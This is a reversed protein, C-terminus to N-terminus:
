RGAGGAQGATARAADSPKLYVGRVDESASVVSVLGDVFTVEVFGGVLYAISLKADPPANEPWMRHMAQAPGGSAYLRELVREGGGGAGAAGPAAAPPTDPDPDPDAAAVPAVPAADAPSGNTFFARVTDGRMWDHAILRMVDADAEPLFPVLSDPTIREVYAQGVAVAEQLQQQPALVDVSDAVMNFQENVVRAQAAAVAGAVPQWQMAVMRAVGGDEFFLRIAAATVDMDESDLRANHRALVDRIEETETLTATISDGVLEYGPLEIQTRLGSLDMRRTNQDYEIVFAQAVLSDRELRADGTGRLRDDGVIDIQQAYLITSDQQGAQRLVAQPRGGMAQVLSERTPTAERYELQESRITSNTGRHVVVVSGRASLHQTRSFYDANTSRLTRASDQFQVNGMLQLVGSAESLYAQDSSIRRGGACTVVPFTMFRVEQPTGINTVHTDVSSLITCQAAAAAPALALVALACAASLLSRRM